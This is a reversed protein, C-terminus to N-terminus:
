SGGYCNNYSTYSFVSGDASLQPNGHSLVHFPQPDMGPPVTIRAIAGGAISYIAAGPPLDQGSESALRLPTAFYVQLGDDTVAPDSFQALGCSSFALLAVPLKGYSRGM